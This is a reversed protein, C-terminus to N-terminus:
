GRRLLLSRSGLLRDTENCVEFTSGLDIVVNRLKIWQQANGMQTFSIAPPYLNMVNKNAPDRMHQPQLLNGVEKLVLAKRRFHVITAQPLVAYYLIINEASTVQVSKNPYITDELTM